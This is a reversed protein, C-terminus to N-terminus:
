HIEKASVLYDLIESEWELSEEKTLAFVARETAVSLNLWAVLEQAVWPWDETGASLVDTLLGESPESSQIREIQQKVTIALRRLLMSQAQRDKSSTSDQGEIRKRTDSLAKIDATSKWAIKKELWNRFDNSILLCESSDADSIPPIAVLILAAFPIPVGLNQKKSKSVGIETYLPIGPVQASPDSKRIEYAEFQAERKAQIGENLAKIVIPSDAPQIAIYSKGFPILLQATASAKVPKENKGAESVALEANQIQKKLVDPLEELVVGDPLPYHGDSSSLKQLVKQAPTDAANDVAFVNRDQLPWLHSGVLLSADTDTFTDAPVVTKDNVNMLSVFHTRASTYIESLKGITSAQYQIAKLDKGNDTDKQNIKLLGAYNDSYYNAVRKTDVDDNKNVLRAELFDKKFQVIFSSMPMETGKSILRALNSHHPQSM